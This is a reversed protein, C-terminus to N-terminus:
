HRPGDIIQHLLEIQREAHRRIKGLQWLVLFPFLVWVLGVLLSGLIVLFGPLGILVEHLTDSIIDM